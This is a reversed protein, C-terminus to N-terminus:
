LIRKAVVVFRGQNTHYACTSLTLLQDGYEAKVGTKHQSLKSIQAVYSDFDEKDEADVFDYYHFHKTDGKSYAQARFVSLVKYERHERITDFTFVKHKKYFKKDEYVQLKGFMSGNRMHHGYIILNDSPREMDCDADVFLAGATAKKKNFDRHLYYEPDKKSSQMVPYDIPTDEITLWGVMDHNKAYLKAYRKLIGDKNKAYPDKPDKKIEERLESFSQEHQYNVYYYSGLQWASYGFVGLLVLVVLTWIVKKM